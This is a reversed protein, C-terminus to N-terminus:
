TSQDQERNMIGDLAICEMSFYHAESKRVGVAFEQQDAKKSRLEQKEAVSKKVPSTTPDKPPNTRNPEASLVLCFELGQPLDVEESELLSEPTPPYLSHDDKQDRRRSRKKRREHVVSSVCM